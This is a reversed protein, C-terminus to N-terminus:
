LKNIRMKKIQKVFKNVITNNSCKALIFDGNHIDSLLYKRLEIINNFHFMNKGRYSKHLSKILKGCTIIKYFSNHDLYKRLQSHFYNEKKGLELMDGLILYKKRGKNISYQNYYGITEKMSLPSANYSEDILTVKKKNNLLLFYLKGRGSLKPLYPANKKFKDFKIGFIYFVLLSILSNLVQHEGNVSLKYKLNNKLVKAEVLFKENKM